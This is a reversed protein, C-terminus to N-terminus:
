GINFKKGQHRERQKDVKIAEQDETGKSNIVVPRSKCMSAPNLNESKRGKGLEELIEQSKITHYEQM